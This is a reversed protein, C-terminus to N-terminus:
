GSDCKEGQGGGGHERSMTLDWASDVSVVIDKDGHVLVLFCDRLGHLLDSLKRFVRRLVGVLEYAPDVVLLLM